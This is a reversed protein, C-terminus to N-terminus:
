SEAAVRRGLERAQDVMLRVDAEALEFHLACSRLVFRGGVDTGSLFVRGGVQLREVLRRNIRDLRAEDHRLSAPAYRFCVITLDSEGVRELEPEADVMAAMRRALSIHRVVHDRLGERGLTLMVGLLKAALFRRTQYVGLNDFRKGAGFGADSDFRLYSADFGFADRLASGDRVLICSCTNPVALWKHPDLALSDVRTLGRYLGAVRPDLRGFAGYAGDVHLWLGQDACYDALAEIPDVVGTNVTGASAVVCFPRHGAARDARVAARLESLDLRLRHDVGVTRPEGLGLLRTSKRVCSHAESSAYVLMRRPAGHLGDRRLDWGDDSCARQVAAALGHLNALSGGDVLLGEATEPFGMLEGLWGLVCQEVYTAAHHGKAATPNTVSALFDLLMGIPAAAPNVWAAFTPCQNGMDFPMVDDAFLRLVEEAGMGRPPLELQLLRDRAGDPMPEYVPRDARSAVHAAAIEAAMASMRRFEEHTMALPSSAAPPAPLDHREFAPSASM